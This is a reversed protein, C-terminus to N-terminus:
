MRHFGDLDAGVVTHRKPVGCMQLRRVAMSMSGPAGDTARRPIDRVRHVSTYFRDLHHVMKEQSGEDLTEKRTRVDHLQQIEVNAVAGLRVDCAGATKFYVDVCVHSLTLM